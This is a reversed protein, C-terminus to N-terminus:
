EDGVGDVSLEGSLLKPLLEDRVLALQVNEKMNSLYMNMASSLSNNFIEIAYNSPSLVKVGSFVSTNMNLTASGGSALDHFKKKLSLMLFYLYYTANKNNPFISNIQQNTQSPEHTVVVNGVTAICSVCVSGAPITKKYQSKEGEKSLYETPEVVFISNHMDPIKIFPMFDGYYADNSKSPTKGCVVQGFDKIQKVEWGKPIEGLESEVMESPFLEATAYLQQYQEPHNTQMAFLAQASKGSIASM